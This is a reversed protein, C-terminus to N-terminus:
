LEAAGFEFWGKPGGSVEQLRPRSLISTLNIHQFITDKDCQELLLGRDDYYTPCFLMLLEVCLRSGGIILVPLMYALLRTISKPYVAEWEYKHFKSGFIFELSSFIFTTGVQALANLWITSKDPPIGRVSAVSGFTLLASASLISAMEMAYVGFGQAMVYEDLETSIDMTDRARKGYIWELWLADSGRGQLVWGLQVCAFLLNMMIISGADELQLLLFRGYLTSYLIPWVMFTTQKLNDVSGIHRQVSRFFFLVSSWIMPHVVVRIVTLGMGGLADSSRLTLLRPMVFLYVTNVQGALMFLTIWRWKMLQDKCYRVAATSCIINVLLSGGASVALVIYNNLSMGYALGTVMPTAFCGAAIAASSIRQVYSVCSGFLTLAIFGPFIAVWATQISWFLLWFVKSASVDKYNGDSVYICEYMGISSGSLVKASEHCLSHPIAWSLGAFISFMSVSIISVPVMMRLLFRLMRMMNRRGDTKAKEHISGEEHDESPRGPTRLQSERSYEDNTSRGRHVQEESPGCTSDMVAPSGLSAQQHSDCGGRLDMVIKIKKFSGL